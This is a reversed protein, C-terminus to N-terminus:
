PVDHHDKLARWGAAERKFTAVRVWSGGGCYSTTVLAVALGASEQVAARSVRVLRPSYRDTCIGRDEHSGLQPLHGQDAVYMVNPLMPDDNETPVQVTRELLERLPLPLSWDGPNVLPELPEVARLEYPLWPAPDSLSRHVASHRDFYLPEEPCLGDPSCLPPKAIEKLLFSRAIQQQDLPSASVFDAEMARRREWADKAGVALPLAIGSAAAVGLAVSLRLIIPARIKPM